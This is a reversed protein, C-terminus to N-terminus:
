VSRRMVREWDDRNSAPVSRSFRAHGLPARPTNPLLFVFPLSSQCIRVQFTIRITSFGGRKGGEWLGEREGGGRKWSVVPSLETIIATLRSLFFKPIYFQRFKELAHHKHPKSTTFPWRCLRPASSFSITLDPATLPLVKDSSVGSLKCLLATVVYSVFVSTTM